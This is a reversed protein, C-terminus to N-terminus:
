ETVPMLPVVVFNTRLTVLSISTPLYGERAVVLSSAPPAPDGMLLVVDTHMKPQISFRGDGATTM